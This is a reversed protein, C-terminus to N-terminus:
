FLPPQHSGGPSLPGEQGTAKKASLERLSLLRLLAPPGTIAVILDENKKFAFAPPVV